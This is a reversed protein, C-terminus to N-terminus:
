VEVQRELEEILSLIQARAKGKLRKQALRRARDLAAKVERRWKRQNRQYGPDNPNGLRLKEVHRHATNLLGDLVDKVDSAFWLSGLVNM